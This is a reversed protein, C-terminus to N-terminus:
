PLDHLDLRITNSRSASTCLLSDYFNFAVEAKDAKAVLVRGEYTLSHIHNKHRRSDAHAHFFRTPTDGESLWLLWSEQCAMTHQLSSSRLSKLKLQQRLAEEHASLARSDRAM